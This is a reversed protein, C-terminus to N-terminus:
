EDIGQMEAEARETVQIAVVAGTYNVAEIAVRAPDDDDGFVLGRVAIEAALELLTLYGLFVNGECRSSQVPVGIVNLAPDCAVREIPHLHRYGIFLFTFLRTAIILDNFAETAVRKASNVRTRASRVLDTDM